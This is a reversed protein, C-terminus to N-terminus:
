AVRPHVVVDGPVVLPLQDVVLRAVPDVQVAVARQLHRLSTGAVGPLVRTLHVGRSAVVPSAGLQIDNLQGIGWSAYSGHLDVIALLCDIHAPRWTEVPVARDDLVNHLEAIDRLLTRDWLLRVM